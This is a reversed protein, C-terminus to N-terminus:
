LKGLLLKRKWLVNRNLNREKLDKIKYTWPNTILTSGIAFMERSLNRTYGETFGHKYETIRVREVAEFEPAKYNSKTEETLVSIILM